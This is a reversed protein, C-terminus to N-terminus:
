APANVLFSAGGPTQFGAVANKFPDLLGGGKNRNILDQFLAFNLGAGTTSTLANIGGTIGERISTAAGRIGQARADGERIQTGAIANSFGTILNAGASGAQAGTNFLSFLRAMQRETEEAGLGRVFRTLTDLGIGSSSLGRAALQQNIAETGEDLQFKYLPSAEIPKNTEQQLRERFSANIKAEEDFKALAWADYEAIHYVPAEARLRRYVAQPDHMVEQSFPDYTVM